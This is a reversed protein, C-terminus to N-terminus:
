IGNLSERTPGVSEKNAEAVDAAEQADWEALGERLQPVLRKIKDEREENSLPALHLCFLSFGVGGMVQLRDEQSGALAIIANSVTGVRQLIEAEVDITEEKRVKEM